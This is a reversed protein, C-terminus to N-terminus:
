FTSAEGNEKPQMNLKQAALNLWNSMATIADKAFKDAEDGAQTTSVLDQFQRFVNSFRNSLKIVESNGSSDDQPNEAQAPQEMNNFKDYLQSSGQSLSPFGNLNGQPTM